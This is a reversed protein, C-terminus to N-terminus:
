QHADMTVGIDIDVRAILQTTLILICQRDLPDAAFAPLRMLRAQEGETSAHKCHAKTHLLYKCQLM